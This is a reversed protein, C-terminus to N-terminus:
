LYYIYIHVYFYIGFSFFNIDENAEAPKPPNLSVAPAISPIAKSSKSETSKPKRPQLSLPKMKTTNTTEKGNISKSSFQVSSKPPPLIAFLGTPGSKSASLRLKKKIDSEEATDAANNEVM